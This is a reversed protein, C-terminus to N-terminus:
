FDIKSYYTPDQIKNLNEVHSQHNPADTLEQNSLSTWQQDIKFNKHLYRVKGLVRLKLNIGCYLLM